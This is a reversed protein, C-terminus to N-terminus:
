AYRGARQQTGHRTLGVSVAAVVAVLTTMVHARHDCHVRHAVVLCGRDM